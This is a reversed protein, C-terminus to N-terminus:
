GNFGEKELKARRAEKEEESEKHKDIVLGISTIVFGSSLSGFVCWDRLNRLFVVDTMLDIPKQCREHCLKTMATDLQSDSAQSLLFIYNRVLDQEGSPM